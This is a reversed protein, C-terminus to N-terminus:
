IRGASPDSEPLIDLLGSNEVHTHPRSHSKFLSAQYPDRKRAIVWMQRYPRWIHPVRNTATSTGTLHPRRAGDRTM